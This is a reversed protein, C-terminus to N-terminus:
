KVIEALIGVVELEIEIRAVMDGVLNVVRGSTRLKEPAFKMGGAPKGGSDRLRQCQADGRMM